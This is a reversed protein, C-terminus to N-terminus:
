WNCKEMLQTSTNSGIDQRWQELNWIENTFGSGHAHCKLQNNLSPENPLGLAHAEKLISDAQAGYPVNSSGASSGVSSLSSLTDLRAKETPTIDYAIGQATKVKTVSTVYKNKNNEKKWEVTGNSNLNTGPAVQGIEPLVESIVKNVSSGNSSGGSVSNIITYPDCASMTFASGILLASAVARRFLSTKSM